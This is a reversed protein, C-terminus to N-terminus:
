SVVGRGGVRARTPLFRRTARGGWRLLAALFLLLFFFLGLWAARRCNVGGVEALSVAGCARLLLSRFKIELSSCHLVSHENLRAPFAIVCSHPALCPQAM